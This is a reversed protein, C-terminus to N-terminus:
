KKPDKVIVLVGGRTELRYGTGQLIREIIESIMLNEAKIEHTGHFLEEPVSVKLGYVDALNSIMVGRSQSDFVVSTRSSLIQPLSEGLDVRSSSSTELAVLKGIDIDYTAKWQMAGMNGIGIVLEPDESEANALVFYM